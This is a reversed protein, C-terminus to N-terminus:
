KFPRRKRIRGPGKEFLEPQKRQSMRGYFMLLIGSFFPIYVIWKPRNELILGRNAGITLILGVVALFLGTFYWQRTKVRHKEGIEAQLVKEDIQRITKRIEEESLGREGLRSRIESYSVGSLKQEVLEQIISEPLKDM